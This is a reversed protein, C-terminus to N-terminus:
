VEGMSVPSQNMFITDSELAEIEHWENATLLLPSDFPTLEIEKGEKRVIMRGQICVTTHSFTHEHHPLGEGVNAKYIASNVGQYVYRTTPSISTVTKQVQIETEIDTSNM